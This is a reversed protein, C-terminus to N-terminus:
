RPLTTLLTALRTIAPQSVEWEVLFSKGHTHTCSTSGSANRSEYQECLSTHHSLCGPNGKCKDCQLLVSVGYGTGLVKWKPGTSNWLLFGRTAVHSQSDAPETWLVTHSRMEVGRQFGHHREGLLSNAPEPFQDLRPSAVYLEGFWSTSSSEGM